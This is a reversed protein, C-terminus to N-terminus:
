WAEIINIIIIIIIIIIIMIMIAMHFASWTVNYQSNNIMISHHSINVEQVIGQQHTVIVLWFLISEWSTVWCVGAQNTPLSRALINIHTFDIIRSLAERLGTCFRTM